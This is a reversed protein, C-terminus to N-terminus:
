AQGGRVKALYPGFGNDGLWFHLMNTVGNSTLTAGSLADVMYKADPSNPDVGGKKLGTAVNGDADFVKKGPWMAKWKPNDVEGGLGPTEKQDYYALGAVTNGDGELVMYGYLTSWLGYGRIPLVIKEISGNEELVYVQSLNERRGISAIDEGDALNVSLAPDRVAKKQEFSEPTVGYEEGSTYEGTNLDVLRVDFRAFEAEIDAQSMPGSVLGAASLINMQRDLNKNSQQAPKLAVAAGAVIVSCVICLLFAVILTQKVTEKPQSM